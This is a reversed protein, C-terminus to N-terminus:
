KKRTGTGAAKSKVVPKKRKPASSGTSRPLLGQVVDPRITRGETM